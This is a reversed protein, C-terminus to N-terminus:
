AASALRIMTWSVPPLLASLRGDTLTSDTSTRPQVREPDEATNTHLLDAPVGGLVVHEAIRMGPLARMHATLTVPGTESRNLAFVTVQGTEEDHTAVVDAVPVDGHQATDYSSTAPEVRLVNGRAHRATLALPHFITQRWAPRDPESRIPAIINVLQALCAVGVRDAHRLLSMLLSGVVVADETTYEDEILRPAQAWDLNTHGAFRSEYWINWEDFSLQLRKRSRKKAAVHDATAVVGDIFRDMALGSALFGARDDGKKEFYAHLSIYDVHDFTHDLVTAEWAGFTPMRDNSSGCAVLKISPDVQRMAKATEAALTGYADASKHGVQWPGDMENGLCWLQIGYPDAVGHQRRLDSWHTGGPHNAYELLDCAEQIGRTGLNVAMMPEVAALRAWSMFENLGFANTEVSRWALDLRHPREAVPGVGDEWRYGSVFNGGPYRVVTVGLERILKLVDLRMGDIDAEAHGPEFIGGYVCRGMHEVFSGFLRPDVPAVAFAPDLTVTCIHVATSGM